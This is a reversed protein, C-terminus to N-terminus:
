ASAPLLKYTNRSLFISEGNKNATTTVDVHYAQRAYIFEIKLPDIKETATISGCLMNNQLQLTILIKGRTNNIFRLDKYGYAVTADSGLPTFREEDNYIDISHAHRETILLGCQLALFYILGSLQCLGGGVAAELEGNIISRSKKYGKKESPNGLLKWFSFTQTPQIIIGNIKNIALSLNHIKNLLTGTTNIPQQLVVTEYPYKGPSLQHAFKKRSSIDACYRILLRASLRAKPPIYRRLNVM